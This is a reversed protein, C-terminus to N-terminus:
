NKIFKGTQNKDTVIVYMGKDLSAVNITNSKGVTLVKKGVLDYVSASNFEAVDSGLNIVDTAPNPSMKSSINEFSTTALPAANVIVETQPNNLTLGNTGLSVYVAPTVAPYMRTVIFYKKPPTGALLTASTPASAPVNFTLSEIQPQNTAETKVVNYGNSVYGGYGLYNGSGDLTGLQLEAIVRAGEVEPGGNGNTNGLAISYTMTASVTGGANITTPSTTTLSIENTQASVNVFSLFLGLGLAIKLLNKKM